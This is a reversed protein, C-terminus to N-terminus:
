KNDNHAVPIKFAKKGYQRAFIVKGNPLTISARYIYAPFEPPKEPKTAMAKEM